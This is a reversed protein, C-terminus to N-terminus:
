NKMMPLIIHFQKRTEISGSYLPMRYKKRDVLLNDDYTFESGDCYEIDYGISKLIAHAGAVDWVYCSTHVSGQYYDFIIPCLMHIIASGFVRFGGKYNSFNLKKICTAEMAIMKINSDKKNVTLKKGNLTPKEGPNLRIFLDDTGVGFRPAYIISGTPEREKNLIGLSIAWSPLGQSYADTGDIPDLIFTLLKKEDFVNQSEETIFNADPFLENIGNEIKKSVYLDVETLVTGDKKYSRQINAQKERAFIGCDKIISALIDLKQILKKNNM